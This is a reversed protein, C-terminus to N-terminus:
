LYRKLIDTATPDDEVILVVPRREGSGAGPARGIAPAGTANAMPAARLPLTIRFVSGKGLASQVSLQGGHLEVLRKSLSLGLGTGEHQRALGSDIQHFEEFVRKQEAAAIGIGTDAVEVTLANAGRQASVSVRGGD